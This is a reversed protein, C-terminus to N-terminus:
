ASLGGPPLGGVVKGQGEGGGSTTTAWRRGAGQLSLMNSHRQSVPSHGSVVGAAGRMCLHCACVRTGYLFNAYSHTRPSCSSVQAFTSLM